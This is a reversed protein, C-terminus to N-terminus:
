FPIPEADTNGVINDRPAFRHIWRKELELAEDPSVVRAAAEVKDRRYTVGPDHSRSFVGDPVRREVRSWGQLHRSMTRELDTLSSGVYVVETRGDDHRIRFVYVGAKGKLDKVWAPYREFRKGLKRYRLGANRQAGDEAHTWLLYGVVAGGLLLAITGKGM